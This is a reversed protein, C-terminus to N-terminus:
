TNPADDHPEGTSGEAGELSGEKVFIDYPVTDPASISYHAKFDFAFQGKGKNTSQISLGATNLVNDLRIAIFGGNGYDWLLWMTKQFDSIVIDQRPTIRKVGGSESEDAIAALDRVTHATVSIFTGSCHVDHDELEIMEMMGAPMNDVDEGNDKLSLTDKFSIGGNTAGKIAARSVEGKVPDFDNLIIGANKQIYAFVNEPVQTALM